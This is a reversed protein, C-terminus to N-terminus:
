AESAKELAALNLNELLERHLDIKIESLREKRKRDRDQPAPAAATRQDPRRLITKVGAAPASPSAAPKASAAPTAAAPAPSQKKYKSFM